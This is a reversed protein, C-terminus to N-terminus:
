FTYSLGALPVVKARLGADNLSFFVNGTLLLNRFIGYKAGVSLNNVLFSGKFPQIDAIDNHVNGSVDTFPVTAVREGGLVRQGLLDAALTVRTKLRVDIGGSYFLQNPLRATQGTSVDGALVSDGNWEYGINAHPSIRARYSAALFPKVGAAGSGLFNLEDGSPVRVDVGGAIALRERSILTSKVRFVVDGIGAAHRFNFFTHDTSGFPNNADFFHYEGGFASRDSCNDALECAPIRVIHANSTVGLRVDLIPVAVSVDIRNTIGYTGFLTIQHLKLDIRNTTTIYDQEFEPFQGNIQFEIHKFDAPL